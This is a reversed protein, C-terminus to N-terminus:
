AFLTVYCESIGGFVSIFDTLNNFKQICISLINYTTKMRNM